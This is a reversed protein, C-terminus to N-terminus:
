TRGDRWKGFLFRFPEEMSEGDEMGPWIYRYPGLYRECLEDFNQVDLPFTKDGVIDEIRYVLQEPNNSRELKLLEQREIVWKRFSGDWTKLRQLVPTKPQYLVLGTHDPAHWSWDHHLTCYWGFDNAADVMERIKEPKDIAPLYPMSVISTCLAIFHGSELRILHYFRWEHDHYPFTLYNNDLAKRVNPHTAPDACHVMDLGAGERHAILHEDPLKHFPIGLNFATAFLEAMAEKRDPVQKRVELSQHALLRNIEEKLEQAKASLRVGHMAPTAAQVNPKELLTSVYRDITEAEVAFWEKGKGVQAYKFAAKIVTEIRKAEEIDCQYNKFVQATANHTKYSAMRKDFDTTIGIKTNAGDTIIYIYGTTM